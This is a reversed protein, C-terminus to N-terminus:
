MLVLEAQLANAAKLAEISGPKKISLELDDSYYDRNQYNWTYLYTANPLLWLKNPQYVAKAAKLVGDWTSLYKEVDAPETPLGADKFVDRRYFLTAPGIDWVLGVLKKGDVSMALDWKYNVFDKKMSLADYPSALLNEFGGSDKYRGVWM